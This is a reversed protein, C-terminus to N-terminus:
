MALFPKWPAKVAKVKPLSNIACEVIHQTMVYFNVMEKIASLTVTDGDELEMVSLVNVYSNFQKCWRQIFHTGGGPSSEDDGQLEVKIQLCNFINYMNIM